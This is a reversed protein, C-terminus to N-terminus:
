PENNINIHTSTHRDIHICGNHTLKQLPCQLCWGILALFHSPASIQGMFEVALQYSLVSSIIQQSLICNIKMFYVLTLNKKTKNGKNMMLIVLGFNLFFLIM